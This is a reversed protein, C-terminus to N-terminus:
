QILHEFLKGAESDLGRLDASPSVRSGRLARNGLQHRVRGPDTFSFLFKEIAVNGDHRDSAVAVGWLTPPEFGGAVLAIMPNCTFSSKGAPAFLPM